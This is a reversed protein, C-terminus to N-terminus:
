AQPASNSPAPNANAAPEVTVPAPQVTIPVPSPQVTITPSAPMVTVNTATQVQQIIAGLRVVEATVFALAAPDTVTKKLATATVSSAMVGTKHNQDDGAGTAM